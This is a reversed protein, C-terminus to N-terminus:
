IGNYNGVGSVVQVNPMILTIAIQNASDFLRIVRISGKLLCAKYWTLLLHHEYTYPVKYSMQHGSRLHTAQM